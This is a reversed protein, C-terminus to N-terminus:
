RLHKCAHKIKLKIKECDNKLSYYNINYKESIHNFRNGDIIIENLIMKEYPNLKAITKKMCENILSSEDEFAKNHEVRDQSLEYNPLLERTKEAFKRYHHFFRSSSSKLQLGMMYTIFNETKGDQHVKWIYPTTKQLFMEICMPLLDGGWKDFGAGCTKRCNIVLQPYLRTIEKQVIERKEGETM